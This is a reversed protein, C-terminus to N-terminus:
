ISEITRFALHLCQIGPGPPPLVMIPGLLSECPNQLPATLAISGPATLCTKLKKWLDYILKFHVERRGCFMIGSFSQWRPKETTYQRFPSFDNEGSNTSPAHSLHWISPQWLHTAHTDLEFYNAAQLLNEVSDAQVQLLPFFQAYKTGPFPMRHLGLTIHWPSWM